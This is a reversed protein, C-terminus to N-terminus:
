FRGRQVTLYANILVWVVPDAVTVRFVRERAAGLRNWEVRRIFDGIEGASERLEDSWTHGADDSYELIVQPDSGQGTNLGVGAQLDLEFRDYRILKNEDAIVPGTRQRKVLLIPIASLIPTGRSTHTTPEPDPPPPPPEEDGEFVEVDTLGGICNFTFTTWYPAAPVDTQSNSVAGEFSYVLAGDVFVEFVGDDDPLWVGPSVEIKSAFKIRLEIEFPTGGRPAYSNPRDSTNGQSPSGAIILTGDGFSPVPHNLFTTIDAISVFSGPGTKYGVGIFRGLVIDGTEYTNDAVVKMKMFRGTPNVVKGVILASATIGSIGPVGGPGNTLGWSPYTGATGTIIPPYAAEFEGQNAYGTFDDEHISTWTVGSWDYPM